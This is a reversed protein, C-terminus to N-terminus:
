CSNADSVRAVRSSTDVCGIRRGAPTSIAFLDYNTKLTVTEGPQLLQTKAVEDCPSDCLGVLVAAPSDNRISRHHTDSATVILLVVGAVLAAGAATGIIIWPIERRAVGREIRIEPRSPADLEPHPDEWAVGRKAAERRSLFRVNQGSAYLLREYAPEDAEDAAQYGQEIARRLENLDDLDGAQVFDKRAQDLPKLARRMEGAELLSRAEALKGRGRQRAAESM